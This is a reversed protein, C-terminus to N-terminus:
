DNKTNAEYRTKAAKRYEPKATEDEAISKLDENSLLMPELLAMSDKFDKVKLAKEIPEINIRRLSLAHKRVDLDDDLLGQYYNDQTANRHDLAKIKDRSNYKNSDLIRTIHDTNINNLNFALHTLEPNDLLKDVHSSDYLDDRHLSYRIKSADGQEILKHLGEKTFDDRDIATEAIAPEQSLASNTVIDSPINQQIKRLAITKLDNNDGNFISEIHRDKVGGYALASATVADGFKDPNELIQDIHRDKVFKNEIKGTEENEIAHYNIASQLLGYYNNEYNDFLQDMHKQNFKPSYVAQSQVYDDPHELGMSVTNEDANPNVFANVYTGVDDKNKELLSNLNETSINNNKALSSGIYELNEKSPNQAFYKEITPKKIFESAAYRMYVNNENYFQKELTEESINPHNLIDQKLSPIIDNNNLIENIHNDQLNPNKLLRAVIATSNTYNKDKVIKDLTESGLNPHKALMSHLYDHVLSSDKLGTGFNYIKDLYEPELTNNSLVSRINYMSGLHNDDKGYDSLLRDINEKPLNPHGYAAEQVDLKGSDIAKQILHSPIDRKDKIVQKLSFQRDPSNASNLKDTFFKEFEDDDMFYHEYNKKNKFEEINKLEPYKSIYDSLNIPRDKEDMFQADEFHFQRKENTKNNISVYLQGRSNYVDFMNKEKERAATCWKTGAGYACAAEETKIKYVSLDKGKHILDAGEIKAQKKEEKKSTAQGLLPEVADDIESLSKYQNIDKKQLRNRYQSFNSLTERIRPHDEQRINQQKYQKLIWQTHKKQPDPDAKEAFHDIIDPLETHEANADHSIDFPKTNRKLFEIKNELLMDYMSEILYDEFISNPKKDEKSRAFNYIDWAKDRIDSDEHNNMIDKLKKLPFNKHSMASVKVAYDNRDDEFAKILHEEKAKPNLAANHRVALRKHNLAKHLQEDSINPSKAAFTGAIPNKHALAEDINKSTVNDSRLAARILRDDKSTKLINSIDQENVDPHATEPIHNDDYVEQHKKYLRNKPSNESLSSAVELAAKTFSPHKIGYESDLRYVRNENLDDDYPQLTARYIEKGSDDHGFIAVTGHKIEYPLVEKKKGDFVNKCSIQAWSHGNPNSASSEPNSQGAVETGRHVTVYPPTSFGKNERAPDSSYSDRLDSDTILKGIKADRGYKDKTIGKSYDSYPIERGLHEEVKRHIESKDNENDKFHLTLKDNGEGFFHDTKSRAYDSMQFPEFKKRQQATLYELLISSFYQNM